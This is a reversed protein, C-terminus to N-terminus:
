HTKFFYFSFKFSTVQHYLQLNRHLSTCDDGIVNVSTASKKRFFIFLNSHFNSFKSGAAFKATSGSEGKVKKSSLTQFFDKIDATPDIKKKPAPNDSIKIVSVDKYM